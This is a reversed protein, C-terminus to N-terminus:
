NVILLVSDAYTGEYVNNLEDIVFNIDYSGTQLKSSGGASYNNLSFLGGNYARIPIWSSKWGQGPAWWFQNNSTGCWLWWDHAVGAYDGPDLSVTVTVPTGQSVTVTGDQGNVKVDPVPFAGGGTGIVLQSPDGMLNYMEYYM